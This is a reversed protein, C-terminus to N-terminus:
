ETMQKYLEPYQHAVFYAMQGDSLYVAAVHCRLLDEPQQPTSEFFRPLITPTGISAFYRHVIAAPGNTAQIVDRASLWHVTWGAYPLALYFLFSGILCVLPLVVSAALGRGFTLKESKGLIPTLSLMPLGVGIAFLLGFVIPVYFMLIFMTFFAHFSQVMYCTAVTILFLLYRIPSFILVCIGLWISFARPIGDHKQFTTLLWGLIGIFIPICFVWSLISSLM